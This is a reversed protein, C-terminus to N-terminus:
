LGGLNLAPSAANSRDAATQTQGNGAPGGGANENNGPRKVNKLSALFRKTEEESMWQIPQTNM